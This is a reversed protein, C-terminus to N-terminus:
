EGRISKGLPTFLFEKAGKIKGEPTFLSTAEKLKNIFGKKPEPQNELIEEETVGLIDLIKDVDHGARDAQERNEVIEGLFDAIVNEPNSIEGAKRASKADEKIETDIQGLLRQSKEPLSLIRQEKIAKRKGPFKKGLEEFSIEGAEAQTFGQNFKDSASVKKPAATTFRLQSSRRGKVDTSVTLSPMIQRAISGLNKQKNMNETQAQDLVGTELESQSKLMTSFDKFETMMAKSDLPTIKGASERAKIQSEINKKQLKFLEDKQAREAKKIKISALNRQTKRTEDIFSNIFAVNRLNAM